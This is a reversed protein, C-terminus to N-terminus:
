SARISTWDGAPSQVSWREIQKNIRVNTSLAIALVAAYSVFGAIAFEGPLWHIGPSLIVLVIGGLLAGGVVIPM